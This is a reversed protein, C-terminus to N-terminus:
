TFPSRAQMNLLTQQRRNRTRKNTKFQELPNGLQVSENIKQLLLQKGIDPVSTDINRKFTKRGINDNIDNSVYDYSKNYNVGNFEFDYGHQEKFEVLLKLLKKELRPLDEKAKRRAREEEMIKRTATRDKPNLNSSGRNLIDKTSEIQSIVNIIPQVLIQEKKLDDLKETLFLIEEDPDKGQYKPRMRLPIKLSDCINQIEKNLEKLVQPVRTERSEHLFEIEERLKNLTAKSLDTQIEIQDSPDIAFVKYLHQIENMLGESEEQRQRKMEELRYEEDELIQLAQDTIAESEIIDRVDDSLNEKLETSLSTIRGELSVLLNERQEIKEDLASIRKKFRDLRELTLDTNGVEAFEGKEDDSMGLREYLQNIRSCLLDFEKHRNEYMSYLDEVAKKTFSIQERLSLNSKTQLKSQTDGFIKQGIRFDEQAQRLQSRLEECTESTESVFSQYASYLISEIRQIENTRENQSLGIVKWM